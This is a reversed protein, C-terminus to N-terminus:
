EFNGILIVKYGKATVNRANSHIMIYDLMRGTEDNVMSAKITHTDGPKITIRGSQAADFFVTKRKKSVVKTIEM